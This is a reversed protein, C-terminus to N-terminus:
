RTRRHPQNRAGAQRSPHIAGGIHRAIERRRDDTASRECGLAELLPGFPRDPAISDCGAQAFQFGYEDIQDALERLLRTKGMGADGEILVIWPAARGTLVLGGARLRGCEFERGRLPRRTRMPSEPPDDAEVPVAAAYGDGLSRVAPLM